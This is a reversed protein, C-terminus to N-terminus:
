VNTIELRSDLKKFCKRMVTLTMLHFDSLGTKIVSISQFSSTVNMNPTVYVIFSYHIIFLSYYINCAVYTAYIRSM